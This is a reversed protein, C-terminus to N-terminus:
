LDDGDDDERESKTKRSVELVEVVVLLYLDYRSQWEVSLLTATELFASRVANSTRYCWVASRYPVASIDNCKCRMRRRRGSESYYNENKKESRKTALRYMRHGVDLTNSSTLLFNGALSSYLQVNLGRCRGQASFHVDNDTYKYLRVSM